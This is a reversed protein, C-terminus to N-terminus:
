SSGTKGAQLGQNYSDQQRQTESILQTRQSVKRSNGGLCLTETMKMNMVDKKKKGTEEQIHRIALM